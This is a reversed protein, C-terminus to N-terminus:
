PLRGSEVARRQYCPICFGRGGVDVLPNVMQLCSSCEFLEVEAYACEFGSAVPHRQRREHCFSCVWIGPGNGGATTGSAGEVVYKYIRNFM